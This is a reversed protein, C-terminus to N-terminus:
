QEPFCYGVGTVGFEICRGTCKDLCKDIGLRGGPEYPDEDNNFVVISKFLADDLLDNGDRRHGEYMQPNLVYKSTFNEKCSCKQCNSTYLLYGILLTFLILIIIERNEM